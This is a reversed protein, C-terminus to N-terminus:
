LQEEREKFLILVKGTKVTMTPIDKYDVDFSDEFKMLCAYCTKNKDCFRQFKESDNEDCFDIRLKKGTYFLVM